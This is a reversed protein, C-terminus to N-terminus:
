SKWRRKWAFGTNWRRSPPAHHSAKEVQSTELEHLRARLTAAETAAAEFDLERNKLTAQAENVLRERERIQSSLDAANQREQALENKLDHQKDRHEERLAAIEARHAALSSEIEKQFNGQAATQASERQALQESLRKIDAQLNGIEAARSEALLGRETLQLQLQSIATEFQVKFEDGRTQVAHLEDEKALLSTRLEQESAVARQWNEELERRSRGSQENREQFEAIESRLRELEANSSERVTRQQALEGRLQDIEASLQEETSRLHREQEM